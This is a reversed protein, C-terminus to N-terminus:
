PHRFHVLPANVILISLHQGNALVSLRREDFRRELGRPSRNVGAERSVSTFATANTM